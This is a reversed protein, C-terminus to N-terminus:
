SLAPLDAFPTIYQFAHDGRIRLGIDRLHMARNHIGLATGALPKGGAAHFDLIAFVLRNGTGVVVPMPVRRM